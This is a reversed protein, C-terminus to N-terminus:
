SQGHTISKTALWKFYPRALGTTGITRNSSKLWAKVFVSEQQDIEISGDSAAVIAEILKCLKEIDQSNDDAGKNPSEPLSPTQRQALTEEAFKKLAALEAKLQIVEIDSALRQSANAIEQTGSNSLQYADLQTRYPLDRRLLTAHSLNRPLVGTANITNALHIALRTPNKFTLRSKRSVSIAKEVLKLKIAMQEQQSEEFRNEGKKAGRTEKKNM